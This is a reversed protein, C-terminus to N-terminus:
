PQKQCLCAPHRYVVVGAVRVCKQCDLNASFTSLSPRFRRSRRLAPHLTATMQSHARRLPLSHSVAEATTSQSRPFWRSNSVLGCGQSHNGCHPVDSFPARPKGGVGSAGAPCPRQLGPQSVSPVRGVGVPGSAAPMRVFRVFDDVDWGRGLAKELAAGNNSGEHLSTFVAGGAPCPRLPLIAASATRGCSRCPRLQRSRAGYCLSGTRQRQSVRRPGVTGHVTVAAPGAALSFDPRHARRPREAAM